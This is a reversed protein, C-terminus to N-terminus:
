NRDMTHVPLITIQEIYHRLNDDRVGHLYLIAIVEDAIMEATKQPSTEYVKLNVNTTIHIDLIEVGMIKQPDVTKANIQQAFHKKNTQMFAYVRPNVCFIGQAYMFKQVAEANKSYVIIEGRLMKDTLYQRLDHFNHIDERQM